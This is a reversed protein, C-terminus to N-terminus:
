TIGIFGISEMKKKMRAIYGRILTNNLIFSFGILLPKGSAVMATVRDCNPSSKFFLSITGKLYICHQKLYILILGGYVGYKM